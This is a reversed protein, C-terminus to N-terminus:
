SKHNKKTKKGMSELSRREWMNRRNIFSMKELDTSDIKIKELQDNETVKELVTIPNLKLKIRTSRRINMLNSKSEEKNKSNNDILKNNKNAATKENNEATSKENKEIIPENSISQNFFNLKKKFGEDSFSKVADEYLLDILRNILAIDLKSINSDM